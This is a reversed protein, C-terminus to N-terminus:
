AGRPPENLRFPDTKLTFNETLTGARLTITRNERTYGISRAALTTTQGTVKSAPVTISYAGTANTYTGLNLAPLFVNANALASGSETTVRGTILAAGQAAATGGATALLLAVTALSRVGAVRKM